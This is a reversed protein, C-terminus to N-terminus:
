GNIIFDTIDSISPYDFVLTPPLKVGQVEETLVDRFLIATNSTLGANMLPVDNELSEQEEEGILSLVVEKIKSELADKSLGSLQVKAGAARELQMSQGGAMAQQQMQAQKPQFPIAGSVQQQPMAQGPEQMMMQQQMWQEQQMMMPPSIKALLESAIREGVADNIFQFIDVAEEAAARANETQGMDYYTNAILLMVQAESWLDGAERFLMISDNAVEVCEEYRKCMALGDALTSLASARLASIGLMQSASTLAVSEKAAKLAKEMIEVYKASGHPPIRSGHQLTSLHAIATTALSEAVGEEYELDECIERAEAAVRLAAKFEHAALHVQALQRLTDYEARRDGAEQLISQAETIRAIAAKFEGKNQHVKGLFVLGDSVLVPGGREDKEYVEVAARASQVAKGFLDEKMYTQALVRLMEAESKWDDAEKFANLAKEASKLAARPESKKEHVTAMMKLATGEGKKCGLETFHERADEALKMADTLSAQEENQAGSQFVIQMKAAFMVDYAEVERAPPSGCRQYIELAEEAMPLAKKAREAHLHRRAISQLECAELKKLELAQIIDLGENAAKVAGDHDNAITAANAVYHLAAVEARQDGTEKIFHRGWFAGEGALKVEEWLVHLRHTELMAIGRMKNDDMEAFMKVAEDVAEFMADRKWNGKGISTNIESASLYMKAVGKRDGAKEFAVRTGEVMERAEEGKKQHVNVHVIIRVADAVGENNGLQSFKEKASTAAKLAEEGEDENIHGEAAVMLMAAEKAEKKQSADDAVAKYFNALADTRIPCGSELPLRTLQMECTGVSVRQARDV